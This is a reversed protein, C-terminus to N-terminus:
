EDPNLRRKYTKLPATEVKVPHNRNMRAVPMGRQRKKDKKDNNIMELPAQIPSMIIKRLIDTITKVPLPTISPDNLPGHIRVPFSIFSKHAGGLGTGLLPIKTVIADITKLPSVIATADVTKESLFIKGTGFLNLGNGYISVNDITLVNDKITSTM